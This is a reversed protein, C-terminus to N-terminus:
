KLFVGICQIVPRTMVNYLLQIVYKINLYAYPYKRSYESMQM